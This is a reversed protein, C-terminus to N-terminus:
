KRAPKAAAPKAGTKPAAQPLRIRLGLGAQLGGAKASVSGDRSALVASGGAYRVGGGVGVTRTFYWAVDLGANVGLASKTTPRADAGTFLVNDYPYSAQWSFDAVLPQKVSVFSPGGGVTVLMRRGVPAVWAAFIHVGVEQRKAPTSGILHRGRSLYLPHPVSADIEAWAARSFSTVQMGVALNQWTRVGVGVAFAPGAEVRYSSTAQGREAYADFTFSSSFESATAQYVGDV